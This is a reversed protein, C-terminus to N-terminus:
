CYQQLWEPVDKGQKVMAACLAIYKEESVGAYFAPIDGDGETKVDGATLVTAPAPVVKSLGKAAGTSTALEEAADDSYFDPTASKSPASKPPSTPPSIHTTNTANTTNPPPSKPPTTIEDAYFSKSPGGSAAKEPSAVSLSSPHDQLTTPTPVDITNGDDSEEKSEEIPEEKLHQPIRNGPLSAYGDQQMEGVHANQMVELGRNFLDLYLLSIILIGLIAAVFFVRAVRSGTNIYRAM